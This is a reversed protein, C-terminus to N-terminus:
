GQLLQQMSHMVSSADGESDRLLSQLVSRLVMDELGFRKPEYPVLVVPNAPPNENYVKRQRAEKLEKKLYENTAQQLPCM